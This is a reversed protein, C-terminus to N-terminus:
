KGRHPKTGPSHRMAVVCSSRLPREESDCETTPRPPCNESATVNPVVSGTLKLFELNPPSNTQICSDGFQDAKFLALRRAPLKPPVDRAGVPNKREVAARGFSDVGDDWLLHSDLLWAIKVGM